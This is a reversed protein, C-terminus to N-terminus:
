HVWLQTGRAGGKHQFCLLSTAIAASLKLTQPLRGVQGVRKKKKLFIDYVLLKHIVQACNSSYHAVCFKLLGLSINKSFRQIITGLYMNGGYLSM